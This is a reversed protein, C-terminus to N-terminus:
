KLKYDSRNSVRIEYNYVNGVIVEVPAEKEYLVVSQSPAPCPGPFGKWVYVKGDHIKMNKTPVGEDAAMVVQALGFAALVLALAGARQLM